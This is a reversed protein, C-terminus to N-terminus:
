KPRAETIGSSASPSFRHVVRNILLTSSVIAVCLMGILMLNGLLLVVITAASSSEDAAAVLSYRELPLGGAFVVLDACLMVAFVTRNSKGALARSIM